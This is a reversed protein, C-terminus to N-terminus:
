RKYLTLKKPNTLRNLEFSVKKIENEKEEVINDFCKKIKKTVDELELNFKKLEEILLQSRLEEKKKNVQLALTKIQNINEDFNGEGLSQFKEFILNLDLKVSFIKIAFDVM